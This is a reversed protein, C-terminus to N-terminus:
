RRNKLFFILFLLILIFSSIAIIIMTLTSSKAEMVAAQVQQASMGMLHMGVSNNNMDKITKFTYLYKGTFLRGKEQLM